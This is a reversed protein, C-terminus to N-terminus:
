KMTLHAFVAGASLRCSRLAVSRIPFWRHRDLAPWCTLNRVFVPRLPSRECPLLPDHEGRMATAYGSMSRSSPDQRQRRDLSQARPRLAITNRRKNIFHARLHYESELPSFLPM